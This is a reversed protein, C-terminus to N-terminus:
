LYNWIFFLYFYFYKVSPQLCSFVFVVLDFLWTGFLMQQVLQVYM